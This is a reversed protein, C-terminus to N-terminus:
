YTARNQKNRAKQKNNKQFTIGMELLKMFKRGRDNFKPFPSTPVPSLGYGKQKILLVSYFLLIILYRNM